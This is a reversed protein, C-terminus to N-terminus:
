IKIKCNPLLAQIKQIEDTPIFNKRIDLVELKKLQGLEVPLTYLDNKALILKELDKLKGIEVPVAAIKNSSLNLVKLNVLKGIEPPISQLNNSTISLKTLQTLECIEKPLVDYKPALFPMLSLVYGEVITYHVESEFPNTSTHKELSATTLRKDEARNALIHNEIAIYDEGSGMTVPVKRTASKIEQIRADIRSSDQATQPSLRYARQRELAAQIDREPDVAFGTSNFGAWIRKIQTLHDIAKSYDHLALANMAINHHLNVALKKHIRAKKDNLNEEKLAVEWLTIAQELDARDQAGSVATEGSRKYAGVSLALAKELDAYEPGKATFLKFTFKKYEPTFFTKLDSQLSRVMEKTEKNVFAQADYIHNKEKLTEDLQKQSPMCGTGYRDEPPHALPRPEAFLIQGDGSKIAMLPAPDSFVMRYYHNTYVKGMNMKEIFANCFEDSTTTTLEKKVLEMNKIALVGQIQSVNLSDLSIPPLNLYRTSVSESEINDAMASGASLVFLACGGLVVTKYPNRM